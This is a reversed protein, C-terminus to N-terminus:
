YFDGDDLPEPNPAPKPDPKDGAACTAIGGNPDFGVPAPLTTTGLIALCLMTVITVNKFVSLLKKM